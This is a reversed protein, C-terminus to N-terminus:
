DKIAHSITSICTLESDLRNILSDRDHADTAKELRAMERPTLEMHLFTRLYNLHRTLFERAALDFPASRDAVVTRRGTPRLGAERFESRLDRTQAFKAADGYRHQCENHVARQVVLELSVPWPLLVHHYEDTELVAVQGGRCAVRALERLAKVPEDLTIFSQACWVFDFSNDEFPLCYADARTFEVTLAASVPQVANRANVLREPSLDAAVLTGAQMHQALLGAYFGDGCPSDLVRAADPLDFSRIAAQLEPRFAQQFAQLVRDSESTASMSNSAAQEKTVDM